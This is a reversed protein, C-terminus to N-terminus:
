AKGTFFQRFKRLGTQEPPIDHLLISDIYEDGVTRTKQIRWRERFMHPILLISKGFGKLAPIGRGHAVSNGFILAYSLILRPYTHPWLRLPMNKVFLMPLNKFTQTVALGPVTNTSASIKHRAVAKPTYWVRYGMLQARFCLDIDEFYMFFREDFLGVERLMDARAIFGGGTTGFIYEPTRPATEIHADRGRPGPIGWTSYLEGSTDITNTGARLMLGTAVGAEPHSNLATTLTTTWGQEATADPNLTGVFTYGQDLAYTFGVNNGGSYGSNVSNKIFHVHHQPHADLYEQLQEVSPAKSNNDVLIIDPVDKSQSLLSEICRITDDAGNWNLVVVAVRNNRVYM